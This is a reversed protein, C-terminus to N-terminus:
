YRGRLVSSGCHHPPQTSLRLPRVVRSLRTALNAVRPRPLLPPTRAYSPATVLGSRGSSSHALAMRPRWRRVDTGWCSSPNAGLMYSRRISWWSPRTAATSTTVAVSSTEVDRALSIYRFPPRQCISPNRPPQASLTRAAARSFFTFFICRSRGSRSRSRSPRPIRPKAFGASKGAPNSSRTPASPIVLADCCSVSKGPLTYRKTPVGVAANLLVSATTLQSPANKCPSGRPSTRRLNDIDATGSRWANTM